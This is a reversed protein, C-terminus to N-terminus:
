LEPIQMLAMGIAAPMNQRGGMPPTTITAGGGGGTRTCLLPPRLTTTEMAGRGSGAMGATTMAVGGEGTVAGFGTVMAGAAM